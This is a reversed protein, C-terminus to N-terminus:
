SGNWLRKSEDMRGAMEGATGVTDFLFALYHVVKKPPLYVRVNLRLKGAVEVRDPSIIDLLGVPRAICRKHRSRRNVVQPVVWEYRVIRNTGLVPM